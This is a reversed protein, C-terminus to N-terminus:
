ELDWLTVKGFRGGAAATLGDPSVALSYIDDMCWGWENILGCSALDWLQVRNRLGLTLLSRGDPTLAVPPRWHEALKDALTGGLAPDPRNLTFIPALTHSKV